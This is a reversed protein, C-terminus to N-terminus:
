KLKHKKLLKHFNSVEVGSVEAARRIIRNNVELAKELYRKEFEDKAKKLPLSLLEDFESEKLTIIRNIQNIKKRLIDIDIPKTLYDYAGIKIARVSHQISDSATLVISYIWPYTNSITKLLGFGSEISAYTSDNEPVGLDIIALNFESSKMLFANAKLVNSALKISHGESLLIDKILKQSSKDDEIVLISLPM